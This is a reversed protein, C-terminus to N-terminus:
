LRVPPAGPMTALFEASAGHVTAIRNGNIRVARLSPRTKSLLLLTIALAASVVVGITWLWWEPESRSSLDARGIACGIMAIVSMAFGARKGVGRLWSRRRRVFDDGCISWEFHTTRRVAVIGLLIVIWGFIPVCVLPAFLLGIVLPSYSVLQQERYEGPRGCFVCAPGLSSRHPIMLLEGSRWPESTRSNSVIAYPLAGEDIPLVELPPPRPGSPSPSDPSEAALNTQEAM